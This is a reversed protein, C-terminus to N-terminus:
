SPMAFQPFMDRTDTEDFIQNFREIQEVLPTKKTKFGVRLMELAELMQEKSAQRGDKDLQNQLEQIKRYPEVVGKQYEDNDWNINRTCVMIALCRTILLSNNKKGSVKEKNLGVEKNLKLLDEEKDYSIAMIGPANKKMMNRLVTQPGIEVTIEVGQSVLYEISKQWQVPEVIQKVLNEEIRDYGKYPLSTVNSMVPYKFSNYKYKKLEEKLREAAPSMLPSHFPASVKLPTVRAGLSKLKEGARNVAGQHGSIVIQEPSNYNSVVVVEEATSYNRCEKEIIEAEIGSIAAMGGVGLAVAEQMFRGRERVIKVADSFQIGGTCTLASIEGLSHGALYEPEIGIENMYTRFAAVSVALIAPQTNETKTLEEISGELCLKKIDFGIADNAEEFTQRAVNSRDCLAKGMGIYQSGQGPFILAIKNM